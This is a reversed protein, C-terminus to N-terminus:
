LFQNEPLKEDLSKVTKEIRVIESDNIIKGKNESIMCELLHEVYASKTLAEVFRPDVKDDPSAPAYERKWDQLFRYYASLM